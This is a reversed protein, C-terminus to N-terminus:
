PRTPPAVPPKNKFDGAKVTSIRALNLHRRLAANVETVTLARVREDLQAEFAMTRGTIFQNALMAAIQGDNSRIQVRQQLWASRAAELEEATIGDNIIRGVEEGFATELRLVNEPAYIANANFSGVSDLSQAGFGSGVGYSIGDRQRIRTALRSNLFGGGLVFNGITLAAYDPSDDRIRINQGAIFVANAKDPTEISENFQPVEFHQRVLRAFPRPSRWNGFQERAFAEVAARDFDGVVAIDGYSAGVLDTYVAKVQEVTLSQLDAIDEEPTAIYLPHGKPYPTMRRAFAISAV